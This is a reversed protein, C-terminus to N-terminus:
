PLWASGWRNFLDTLYQEFPSREREHMSPGITLDGFIFTHSMQGHIEAGAGLGLSATRLRIGSPSVAWNGGLM